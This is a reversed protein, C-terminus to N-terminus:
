VGYGASQQRTHLPEPKMVNLPLSDLGEDFEFHLGHSKPGGGMFTRLGTITASPISPLGNREIYSESRWSSKKRSWFTQRARRTNSEKKRSARSGQSAFLSRFASVAAMLVSISAELQLLFLEWPVDQVSQEAPLVSIRVLAIIIMSISLCLSLLLGYKQRPKIRANWLLTVPISIVLM